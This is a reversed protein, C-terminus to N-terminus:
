AARLRDSDILWDMAAQVERDIIEARLEMGPRSRIATLLQSRAQEIQDILANTDPALDTRRM